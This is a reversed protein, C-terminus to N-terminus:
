RRRVPSFDGFGEDFIDSEFGRANVEPFRKVYDYRRSTGGHYRPSRLSRLLITRIANMMETDSAARGHGTATGQFAHEQEEAGAASGALFALCLVTAIFVSLLVAVFPEGFADPGLHIVSKFM